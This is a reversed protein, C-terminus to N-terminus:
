QEANENAPSGSFPNGAPGKTSYSVVATYIEWRAWEPWTTWLEDADADTFPSPTSEVSSYVAATGAALVPVAISEYPTKGTDPDRHTDIITQYEVGPIPRLQFSVALDDGLTVTHTTTLTDLKPLTM